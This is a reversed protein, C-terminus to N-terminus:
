DNGYESDIALQVLTPYETDWKNKIVHDFNRPASGPHLVRKAHVLLSGRAGRRSRIKNPVTKSRGGVRFRLVRARKPRIVHPNTGKSVFGYIRDKTGVTGGQENATTTFHPQHNWTQTTVQFDVKAAETVQVHANRLVTSIGLLDPFAKKPLIPTVPM